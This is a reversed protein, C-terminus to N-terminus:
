NYINKLLVICLRHTAAMDQDVCHFHLSVAIWHSPTTFFIFSHIHQVRPLTERSLSLTTFQILWPSAYSDTNMLVQIFTWSCIWKIQNVTICSHESYIILLMFCYNEDYKLQRGVCQQYWITTTMSVPECAVVPCKSSLCLHANCFIEWLSERDWVRGFGLLSLLCSQNKSRDIVFSLMM